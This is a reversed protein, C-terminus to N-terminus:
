GGIHEELFDLIDANLEDRDFDLPLVHKSHAYERFVKVKSKALMAVRRSSAVNIAADNKGFGFFLPCRIHKIALIAKKRLSEMELLGSIPMQPMSPCKNKAIPDAIDSAGSLKIISFNKPLLGLSAAKIILKASFNLKLAPSLLVLASIQNSVKKTLLIALLAGMSLGILIKPSKDDFKNFANLSDLLWDSAKIGILKEPQGGHASLLPVAVLYGAKNLYMALPKLDYPSGTFGHLLLIQGRKGERIFGKKSLRPLRTPM